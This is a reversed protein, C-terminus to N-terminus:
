HARDFAFFVDHSAQEGPCTYNKWGPNTRTQATLQGRKALIFGDMTVVDVEGDHDIDAIGVAGRGPTVLTAEELPVVNGSPSVSFFTEVNISFYPYGGCEGM